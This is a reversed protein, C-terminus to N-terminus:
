LAKAKEALFADVFQRNAAAMQQSPLIRGRRGVSGGVQPKRVVEAPLINAEPFPTGGGAKQTSHNVMTQLAYREGSLAQQMTEWLRDKDGLASEIRDELLTKETVLEENANRLADLDSEASALQNRLDCREVDLKAAEDAMRDRAARVGVLEGYCDSQREYAAQSETLIAELERFRPFLRLFYLIAKNM